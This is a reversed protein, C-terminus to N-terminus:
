KTRLWRRMRWKEAAEILWWRLWQPLKVDGGGGCFMCTEWPGGGIGRYLIADYEGGEGKCMPCRIM